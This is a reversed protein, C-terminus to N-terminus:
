FRSNMMLAFWKDLSCTALRGLAVVQHLDDILQLWLWGTPMLRLVQGHSEFRFGHYFPHLCRLRHLIICEQWEILQELVLCHLGHQALINHIENTPWGGNLLGLFGELRSYLCLGHLLLLHLWLTLFLTFSRQNHLLFGGRKFIM